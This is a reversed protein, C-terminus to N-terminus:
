EYDHMDAFEMLMEECEITVIRPAHRKGGMWM